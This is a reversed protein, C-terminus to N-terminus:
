SQPIPLDAIEGEGFQDLIRLFPMGALASCDPAPSGGTVFNAHTIAIYASFADATDIEIPSLAMRAAQLAQNNRKSDSLRDAVKMGWIDDRVHCATAAVLIGRARSYYDNMQEYNLLAASAESQTSAYRSREESSVAAGWIAGPVRQVWNSFGRAQDRQVPDFGLTGEDSELGPASDDQLKETGDAPAVTQSESGAIPGDAQKSNCGEATLLILAAAFPFKRM